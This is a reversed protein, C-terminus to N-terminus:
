SDPSSCGELLVVSVARYFFAKLIRCSPNEGGVRLLFGSRRWKISPMRLRQRKYASFTLQLSPPLQHTHQRVHQMTRAKRFAHRQTPCPSRRSIADGSLIQDFLVSAVRADVHYQSCTESRIVCPTCHQWVVAQILWLVVKRDLESRM